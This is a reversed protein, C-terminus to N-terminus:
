KRCKGADLAGLMLFLIGAVISYTALAFQPTPPPPPFLEDDPINQWSTVEKGSPLRIINPKEKFLDRAPNAGKDANAEILIQQACATPAVWPIFDMKWPENVTQSTLMLTLFIGVIGLVVPVAVSAIRNSVWLYISLLPLSGLWLWGLLLAITQGHFKYQLHPAAFMMLGHEAWLLLWVAALAALSLVSVALWKSFYVYAQSIPMAGLHKWMKNRHEVRFILGPLVAVLIPHFFGGWLAGSMRIQVTDIIQALDGPVAKIGLLKNQFFSFEVLIFLVPLVWVARGCSSGRLKKWEAKLLRGVSGM